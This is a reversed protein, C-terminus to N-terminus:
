PVHIKIEISSYIDREILRKLNNIKDAAENYSNEKVAEHTEISTKRSKLQDVQAQFVSLNRTVEDMM